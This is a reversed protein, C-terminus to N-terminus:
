PPTKIASKILKREMKKLPTEESTSKIKERGNIRTKGNQTRIKQKQIPKIALNNLPHNIPNKMM